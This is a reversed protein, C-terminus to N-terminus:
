PLKAGETMRLPDGEILGDQDILGANKVAELIKGRTEVDLQLRNLDLVAVKHNHNIEGEIRQAPPGYTERNVRENAFIIARTNGQGVLDMLASEIFNKKAHVMEEWLRVFRPDGKAWRDITAKPINLMRMCRNLDFQTTAMAHVLLRQRDYDGKTALAMRAPNDPANEDQLGDWLSKLDDPLSNAIHNSLAASGARADGARARAAIIARYFAPERSKWERLRSETIQLAVALEPDTPCSLAAEFAQWIRDQTFANPNNEPISITM